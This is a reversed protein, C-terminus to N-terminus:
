LHAAIAMAFLVATATATLILIVTAVRLLIRDQREKRRRNLRMRPPRYGPPPDHLYIGRSLTGRRGRPGGLFVMMGGAVQQPWRVATTVAKPARIKSGNKTVM